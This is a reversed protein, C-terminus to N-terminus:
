NYRFSFRLDEKGMNKRALQHLNQLLSSSFHPFNKNHLQSSISVHCEKSKTFIKQCKEENASSNNVTAQRHNNERSWCLLMDAIQECERTLTKEFLDITSKVTADRFSAPHHFVQLSIGVPESYFSLKSLTM